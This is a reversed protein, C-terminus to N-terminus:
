PASDEPHPRLAIHIFMGLMIPILGELLIAPWHSWEDTFTIVGAWVGLWFLINVIRLNRKM